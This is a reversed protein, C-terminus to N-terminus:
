QGAEKVSIGEPLLVDEDAVANLSINMYQTSMRAGLSDTYESRLPFGNATSVWLYDGSETELQLCYQGDIEEGGLLTCSRYDTLLPNNPADSGNPDFYSSLAAATDHYYALQTCGAYDYYCESLVYSNVSSILKMRENKYWVQLFVAGDPYDVRQEFYCSAIQSQLRVLDDIDSDAGKDDTEDEGTGSNTQQAGGEAIGSEIVTPDSPIDPVDPKLVYAKKGCSSLLLASLLLLVLLKKYKLM